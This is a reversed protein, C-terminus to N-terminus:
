SRRRVTTCCRAGMRTPRTAPSPAGPSRSQSGLNNYDYIGGGASSTAADDAFTDNAVTIPAGPALYLGGGAAGDDNTFTTSTISLYGTSGDDLFGGGIGDIQSTATDSSMDSGSIGLNGPGDDSLGGSEGGTGDATTSDNDIASDSISMSGGDVELAGAQDYSLASGSISTSVAGSASYIAGGYSSASSHDIAADTASLTGDNYIAAGYGPAISYDSSGSGPQNGNEITVGSISLSAGSHVAFARDIDNANIITSAAGQGTITLTDGSLVDLDGDAPDSAGGASTAPTTLVVQGAPLTIGNSGGTNDAAQVAARLTCTGSADTSM